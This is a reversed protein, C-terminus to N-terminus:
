AEVGPGTVADLGLAFLARAETESEVGEAIAILGIAHCVMTLGRLFAQNGPNQEIDRVLAAGVKFYSLGLDHLEGIRAFNRGAHELGIKCGLPALAVCLERLAATHRFAGSEPIDIWLHRARDPERTLRELLAARFGADAISEASLNICLEEGAGHLGDLALDLAAADLRPLWGLRALWPMVVGAPEWIEEIRMRVPCEVHLTKGAADLVPFRALKLARAAFAQELLARWAALDPVRPQSATAICPVETDAQEARALAGDVRALLEALADGHAYAAAGIPFRIDLGGYPGLDIEALDARLRQAVAPAADAEPAILVFDAGNLRGCLWDPHETLLANVVRATAALLQDASARGLQANIRALPTVRAIALVGAAGADDRRMLGAAQSLFPERAYLGTLPDLQIERRLTELRGSEEELMAKVRASLTNMARAVRRFELTSPEEIRIFRRAGIAEAQTVVEGLPRTIRRILWAGLVGSLVAAALLWGLLQLMGSWLAAYAYRTHSEVVLTGSQKWGDSVSARGPAAQIPVLAVFWRPAGPDSVDSVREVLTEGRPGQLRILRYHGTDFQAALLLELTVPDNGMHSLTLALSAANDLNKLYLQAELYRKATYGSVVFSGGFALALLIVITLWLQKSLSM